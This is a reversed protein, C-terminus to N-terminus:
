DKKSQYTTSLFEELLRILTPLATTRSELWSIDERRCLFILECFRDMDELSGLLVLAPVEVKLLGALFVERKPLM